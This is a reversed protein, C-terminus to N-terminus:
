KSHQANAHPLNFAEAVVDDGSCSRPDLCAPLKTLSPRWDGQNESSAPSLYSVFCSVM